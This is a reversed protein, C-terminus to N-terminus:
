LTREEIADIADKLTKGTVFSVKDITKVATM